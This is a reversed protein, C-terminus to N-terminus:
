TGAAAAAARGGGSPRGSPPPTLPASTSAISIGPALSVPGIGADKIDPGALGNGLWEVLANARRVAAQAIRQNILMQQETLRVPDGERDGAPPVPITVGPGAPVIAGTYAGATQVSADFDPPLLSGPRLNASAM